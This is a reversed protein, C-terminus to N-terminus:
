CRYRLSGHAQSLGSNTLMTQTHVGGNGYRTSSVQPPM